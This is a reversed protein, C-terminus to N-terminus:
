HTRAGEDFELFMTTFYGPNEEAVWHGCDPVLRSTVNEAIQRCMPEYEKSLIQTGGGSALVPIALKGHRSLDARNFDADHDLERYIECLARMAGPAEFARAYLDLDDNGIADPQYALDDFFRNIYWRERGHTLYVAIDPNAPFDFHWASKAVKRQEYYDTGPLPAEMFTASVVDSRYRLAYSLALMSGLDHGVLSVPGTVALVDHVLSHLDGAMTWKDYGDRPKTSAGAGRYDPAIVRYGAEALPGIVKRWAYRTQPAGHVLLVTKDPERDVPVALTYGLRVNGDQDVWAKGHRVHVSEEAADFRQHM